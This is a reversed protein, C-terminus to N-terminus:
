YNLSVIKGSELELYYDNELLDEAFAENDFYKQNEYGFSIKEEEAMEDRDEFVCGIIGRDQYIEDYEKFIYDVESSTLDWKKMCYIKEDNVVKEFLEKNENSKLKDEIYQVSNIIEMGKNYRDDGRTIGYGLDRLEKDAKFLKIFDDQTLITELEDFNNVIMDYLEKEFGCFCAGCIHFLSFYHGCEFGGFEIYKVCDRDDDNKIKAIFYKREMKKGENRPMFVATLIEM